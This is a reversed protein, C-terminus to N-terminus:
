PMDCARARQRRLSTHDIRRGAYLARLDERDDPRGHRHRYRERRYGSARRDAGLQVDARVVVEGQSTFKVANGILNMLIQRMRLPDGLLCSHEHTPPWVILEIGKAEAAGAFLTTCEEPVQGLDLPLEELTVKGARIKSLDLLDNVIQLLVRASSRITQTLRAQTSSLPTRALLETMGVVGNMPTRLEHSMRDLFNSKAQAAEALQRNSEVLERTRVEVESELRQRAHVVRRFKQRHLHARYLILGLAALAYALYAWPSKWPAAERRITLRLPTESWVSDANAARVELVHDGADLNTLTIRHQTGLDIWRDTLGAM